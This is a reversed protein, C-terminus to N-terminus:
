KKNKNFLQEAPCGIQRQKCHKCAISGRIFSNGLFTLLFLIIVLTLLLWNFNIVLLVIASIIPILSVMFNPLIDKCTIKRYPFKEPNGKKFFLSCIKGKGFACNKGYYYCDVCSKRLLNIELFLVFALYLFMWLIGFQYIIYAGIAYILIQFFNSLFIM